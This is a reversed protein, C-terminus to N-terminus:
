GEAPPPATALGYLTVALALTAYLSIAATTGSADFLLLAVIPAFAGGAVGALQYGLSTGSYRVSTPFLEAIFAAQPGYMAAHAALAVVVATVVLWTSGTDLLPFFAWAWAMSAVAGAAAIGRRGYRDSLRGFWPVLALQVTSGIVVATLGVGSPLGVRDELHTLLYLTFIYFAVDVGVRACFSAALARRHGVWVERLPNAGRAPLGAFMPSEDVNGRIWLGVLALAASILFPLRWGWTAFAAEDLVANCLALVGVAAINGAPVGFQVWAAALGWRPRDTHEISLLVAGGWEGGLSLGQAFRLLVLLVAATTGISAHTPLIGILFTSMGMVLLTVSLVQRRGYRDGLYGFVISGIPRAIFGVGYTAFALLTGTAPAGGPFFLPQFVLVAATGYLFFDYWALSTGVACAAIVQRPTRTRPATATSM